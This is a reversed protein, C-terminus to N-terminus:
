RKATDIYSKATDIYNALLWLNRFETKVHAAAEKSIVASMASFETEVVSEIETAATRDVMAYMKKAAERETTTFVM